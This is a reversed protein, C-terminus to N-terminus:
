LTTSLLHFAFVHLNMNNTKRVIYYTAFSVSIAIDNMNM